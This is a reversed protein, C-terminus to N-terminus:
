KNGIKWNQTLERFADRAYRDKIKNIEYRSILDAYMKIKTFSRSSERTSGDKSGLNLNNLIHDNIIQDFSMPKDIVIKRSSFTDNEIKYKLEKSVEFNVIYFIYMNWVSFESELNSQFSTALFVSFDDWNDKLYTIEDSSILFIM